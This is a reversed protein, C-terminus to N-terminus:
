DTSHWAGAIVVVNTSLLFPDDERLFARLEDSRATWPLSPRSPAHPTVTVNRTVNHLFTKPNIPIVFIIM